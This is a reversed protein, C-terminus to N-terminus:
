LGGSPTLVTPSPVTWFPTKIERSHDFFDREHEPIPQGQDATNGRGLAQVMAAVDAHPQLPWVVQHEFVLFDAAYEAFGYHLSLAPRPDDANPDVDVRM